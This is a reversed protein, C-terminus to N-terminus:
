LEGEFINGLNPRYWLGCLPQHFVHVLGGKSLDIDGLEKMVASQVAANIRNLHEKPLKLGELNVTFVHDSNTQKAM